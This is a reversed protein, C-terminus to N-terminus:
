RAVLLVSEFYLNFLKYINQSSSNSDTEMTKSMTQCVKQLDQNTLRLKKTALALLFEYTSERRYEIIAIIIDTMQGSYKADVRYNLEEANATRLIASQIIGDNLRDFNHPDLLSVQHEEQILQVDGKIPETRLRHIVSSITFYVDAQSVLDKNYSFNFLAFGKRLRLEDGDPTPWFVESILGEKKSNIDDIRTLIIQDIPVSTDEAIHTLRRLFALEEEWSTGRPLHQDDPIHIKYVSYLAHTHVGFMNGYCINIRINEFDKETYTRMIGVLYIISIQDNNRLARSINLLKRSTSVSSGVVLISGAINKIEEHLNIKEDYRLLLESNIKKKGFHYYYTEIQEAMLKSADDDLFIIKSLSAPINQEIIKYFRSIYDFFPVGEKLLRPNLLYHGAIKHVYELDIFLERKDIEFERERKKRYCTLARNMSFERIFGELWKPAYNTNITITHINIKEPLFQDGIIKLPLSNEVNCFDCAEASHFIEIPKPGDLNDSQHFDLRCLIRGVHNWEVLGKNKDLSSLYFLTIINSADLFPKAKELVKKALNGSTSASILILSNSSDEFKFENLGEYSGFSNINSHACNLNLCRRLNVLAQAISIITSTDCVIESTEDKLFPLLCFAIFNVEVGVSLINGTRIFKKAHKGSPYEYHSTSSSNLIGGRDNFIKILGQKIIKERIKLNKWSKKSLFDFIKGTEDFYLYSINSKRDFFFLSDSINDVEFYGQVLKIKDINYEPSLVIIKTPAFNKTLYSKISDSLRKLNISENVWFLVLYNEPSKKPGDEHSFNFLYYTSDQAM